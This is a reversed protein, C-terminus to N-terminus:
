LRLAQTALYGLDKGLWQRASLVRGSNSVVYHDTFHGAPGTCKATMAIGHAKVVGSTVTQSGGRTVTCRYELPETVDEPTLLNQVYRAQGTSRNTILRHLDAHDTSMLDGGLGRTGTIMGNRMAVIQRSSNAYSQFPGNRQIDVMVFQGRTESQFLQAPLASASLLQSIQAQTLTAPPQSQAKHTARLNNLADVVDTNRPGCATLAALTACALGLRAFTTKRISM